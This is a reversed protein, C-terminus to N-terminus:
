FPQWFVGLNIPLNKRLYQDVFVNVNAIPSRPLYVVDYPMLVVNQATDTGDIIKTLDVTLVVPKAEGNARRIIIVEDRRASEKVGGAQAISDLVTMAGSLPVLSPKNVEGDVYVRQNAFSRSIVTIEPRALDAAYKERLAQTLQAPTLGAVVVEPALQLSIRGDPRVTVSENLEPNYFFKIDFQDGPQIRYEDVQPSAASFASVPVPNKVIPGCGALCAGLLFAGM